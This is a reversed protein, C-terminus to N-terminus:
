FRSERRYGLGCVNQPEMKLGNSLEDRRPFNWHLSEAM